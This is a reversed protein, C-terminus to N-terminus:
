APRTPWPRLPRVAARRCGRSRSCRRADRSGDAAEGCTSSCSNAMTRSVRPRPARGDNLRVRQALALFDGLQQRGLANGDQLVAVDEGDALHVFRAPHAQPLVLPEGALRLRAPRNNHRRARPRSSCSPRCTRMATVPQATSGRIFYRRPTSWATGSESWASKRRATRPRRAPRAAPPTSCARGPSNQRDAGPRRSRRGDAPGAWGPVATKVRIEGQM